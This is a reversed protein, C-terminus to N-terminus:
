SNQLLDNRNELYELMYIERKLWEPEKTTNLLSKNVQIVKEIDIWIPKFGLDKEYGDLNQTGLGDRVRCLYYHSAMKFVDYEAETAINYEIVVGISEGIVELMAGSEEEVERKLAQEHTEGEKVGGGPFKYDGVRSSYIMLLNRGHQIVARVATRHITRGRINIGKNRHIETLIHM